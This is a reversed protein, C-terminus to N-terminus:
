LGFLKQLASILTNINGEEICKLVEDLVKKHIELRLVLPKRVNEGSVTITARPVIGERLYLCARYHMPTNYESYFRVLYKNDNLPVFDFVLLRIGQGPALSTIHTYVITFLLGVRPIVVPREPVAWPLPGRIVPFYKDVVYRRAPCKTYIPCESSSDRVILRSLERPSPDILQLIAKVDRLIVNGSNSILVSIRYAGDRTYEPPYLGWKLGATSNYFRVIDSLGIAILTVSTGILTGFVESPM